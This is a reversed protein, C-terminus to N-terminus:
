PVAVLAHAETGRGSEDVAAGPRPAPVQPRPLLTLLRDFLAAAEDVGLLGAEYGRWGQELRGDWTASALPRAGPVLAARAPPSTTLRRACGCPCPTTPVLRRLDAAAYHELVAATGRCRFHLVTGDPAAALIRVPSVHSPPLIHLGRASLSQTWARFDM